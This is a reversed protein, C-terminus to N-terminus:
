FVVAVTITDTYTGIAPTQGAAISGYATISQPAGTGTQASVVTGGTGDGWVQTRAADEFISYNLVNAGSTMQRVAPTATPGTGAGLAVTYPVTTSCVASIVTTSLVPTTVPTPISAGFALAGAAVSCSPAFQATVAFTATEAASAPSALSLACCLAAFSSLLPATSPRMDFPRKPLHWKARSRSLREDHM